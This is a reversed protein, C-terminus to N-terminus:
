HSILIRHVLIVIQFVICSILPLIGRNNILDLIGNHWNQFLTYKSVMSASLPSLFLCLYCESIANIKNRSLQSTRPLSLPLFNQVGINFPMLTEVLVLVSWDTLDLRLTSLRQLLTAMALFNGADLLKSSNIHHRLYLCVDRNPPTISIVSNCTCTMAQHPKWYVQYVPIKKSDVHTRISTHQYQRGIM